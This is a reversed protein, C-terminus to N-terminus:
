PQTVNQRAHVNAVGEFLQALYLLLISHWTSYLKPLTHMKNWVDSYFLISHWTSYLIPFTYMKNWVGSDYLFDGGDITYKKTSCSFAWHLKAVIIIMIMIININFIFIFINIVINICGGGKGGMLGFFSAMGGAWGFICGM